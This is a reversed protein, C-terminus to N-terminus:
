ARAPASRLSAISVASMDQRAQMIKGLWRRTLGLLALGNSCILLSPFRRTSTMPMKGLSSLMTRRIPTRWAGRVLPPEM